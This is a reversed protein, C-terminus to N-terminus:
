SQYLLPFAYGGRRWPKSLVQIFNSRGEMRLAALRLFAIDVSVAELFPPLKLQEQQLVREM